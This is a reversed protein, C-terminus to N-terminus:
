YVTEPFWVYQSHSAAGGLLYAIVACVYCSLGAVLLILNAVYWKTKRNRYELIQILTSEADDSQFQTLWRIRLTALIIIVAGLVFVLGFSLGYRAFLGSDAIKPGSFGTITLMITALTLLLQSRQQMVTFQRSLTDLCASLRDAGGHLDLLYAAEERVHLTKAV